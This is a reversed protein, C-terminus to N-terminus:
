PLVLVTAGLRHLGAGTGLKFRALGPAAETDVSGLDLWRVGEAALALAARVLMVGHVGAARGAESTWGLHYTASGGQVVFAMAAGMQGAHRWDWLRLAGPPLARSFGEPLSRYGRQHRQKAEEALLRGLTGPDGQRVELGEAARLRNRWKGAMGAHLDGSLDWIAHHLPTVLPVLGFGRLEEEPTAVTVGPWRALRRLARRRDTPSAEPQWLPGRFVSRVRGREVVLATGCGLDHWAVRAGMARVASAYVDSQQLPVFGPFDGDSM